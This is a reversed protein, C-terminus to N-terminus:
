SYAELHSLVALSVFFSAIEWHGTAAAITGVAVAALKTIAAIKKTM